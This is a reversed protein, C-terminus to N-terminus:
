EGEAAALSDRRYGSAAMLYNRILRADLPQLDGEARRIEMKMSDVWAPWDEPAHKDPRQLSHCGDCKMVYRRRGERLSDLSPSLGHGAAWRAHGEGPQPINEACALLLLAGGAGFWAAKGRRGM